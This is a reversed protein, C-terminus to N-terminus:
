VAQPLRPQGLRGPQHRSGGHIVNRVALEVKKMNITYPIEQVQIVKAPVHRPSCTDRINKRIKNILPEDLILDNALTVFLVVRVDDQWKQGVVVSDAVEEMTELATYIDATGIRVGGPNLTADSRGYITIGRTQSNISIFDGHTWVGPYKTFYANRYREGDPDNWFYVPMSPFARTCVLEGTQDYVPQGSDDYAQVNLGLGPGQLEGAHVPLLPTGLAFCGNLDTGGSISALQMEKKIARYAYEFGSVSLPSGTSCIM